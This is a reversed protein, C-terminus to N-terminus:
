ESESSMTKEILDLCTSIAERAQGVKLGTAPVDSLVHRVSEITSVLDAKTPGGQVQGFVKREPKTVEGADIKAFLADVEHLETPKPRGQEWRWIISPTTGAADALVGRTYQKRLEVMRAGIERARKPDVSASPKSEAANNTPQAKKASKPPGDPNARLLKLLEAKTGKTGTSWGQAVAYQRLETLSMSGLNDTTEARADITETVADGPLPTKQAARITKAAGRKRSTSKSVTPM